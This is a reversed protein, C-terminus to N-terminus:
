IIIAAMDKSYNFNGIGGVGGSGGKFIKALREM